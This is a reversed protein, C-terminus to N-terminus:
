SSAVVAVTEAYLPNLNLWKASYQKASTDQEIMAHYNDNNRGSHEVPLKLATYNHDQFALLSFRPVKNSSM